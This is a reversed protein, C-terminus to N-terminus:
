SRKRMHTSSSLPSEDFGQLEQFHKQLFPNYKSIRTVKIDSTHFAEGSDNVRRMWVEHDASRSSVTTLSVPNSKMLCTFKKGKVTGIEAFINTVPVPCSMYHNGVRENVEFSYIEKDTDTEYVKIM